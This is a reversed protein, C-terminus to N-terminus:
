YAAGRWVTMDGTVFGIDPLATSKVEVV